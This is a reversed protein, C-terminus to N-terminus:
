RKENEGGDRLCGHEACMKEWVDSPSSFRGYDYVGGDIEYLHFHEDSCDVVFSIDNVFIFSIINCDVNCRNIMSFDARKMIYCACDALKGNM